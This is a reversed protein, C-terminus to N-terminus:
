FYKRHIQIIERVTGSDVTRREHPSRFIYDFDNNIWCSIVRALFTILVFCESFLKVM